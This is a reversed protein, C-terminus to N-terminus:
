TITDHRQATTRDQVRTQNTTVSNEGSGREARIQAQRSRKERGAESEVSDRAQSRDERGQFARLARRVRTCRYCSTMQESM